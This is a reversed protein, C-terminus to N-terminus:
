NSVTQFVPRVRNYTAHGMDVSPHDCLGCGRTAEGLVHKVIVCPFSGPRKTNRDKTKKTMKM